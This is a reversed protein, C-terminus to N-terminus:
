QCLRLGTLKAFQPLPRHGLGVDRRLQYACGQCVYRCGKGAVFPCPHRHGDFALKGVTGAKVQEGFPACRCVAVVCFGGAVGPSTDFCAAAHTDAGHQVQCFFIPKRQGFVVLCRCWGAGFHQCLSLTVALGRLHCLLVARICGVGM